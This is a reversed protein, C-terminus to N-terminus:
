ALYRAPELDQCLNRMPNFVSGTLFVTIGVSQAAALCIPTLLALINLVPITSGRARVNFFLHLFCTYVASLFSLKPGFGGIFSNVVKM